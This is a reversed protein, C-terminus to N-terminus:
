RLKIVNTNIYNLMTQVRLCEDFCDLEQILNSKDLISELLKSVNEKKLAIAVLHPNPETGIQFLVLPHPFTSSYIAYELEQISKIYINFMNLEEDHWKKLEEGTEFKIIPVNLKLAKVILEKAENKIM